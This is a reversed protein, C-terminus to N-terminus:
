HISSKIAEVLLDNLLHRMAATVNRSVFVVHVLFTQCGDCLNTFHPITAARFGLGQITTEM